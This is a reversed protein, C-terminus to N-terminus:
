ILVIHYEKALSDPKFVPVGYIGERGNEHYTIILPIPLSGQCFLFLPKKKTEEGKASRILIDVTDGSYLMQLHRFGYDAPSKLQGSVASCFFLFLPLLFRLLKVIM